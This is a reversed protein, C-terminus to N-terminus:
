ANELAEVKATLEKIASVMQPIINAVAFQQAIIDGNEKVADKVGLVAYEIDAEEVEHAIFGQHVKNPFRKFNFYSPKLANVKALGGTILSINEKIRYDSVTNNTATGSSCVITGTLNTDTNGDRFEIFIGLQQMLM